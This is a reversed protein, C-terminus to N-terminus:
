LRRASWSGGSAGAVPQYNGSLSVPNGPNGVQARWVTNQTDIISLTAGNLSWNGNRTRGMNGQTFGMTSTMNARLVLTGKWAGSVPPSWDSQVGETQWNGVLQQPNLTM